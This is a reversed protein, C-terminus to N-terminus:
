RTSYFPLSQQCAVCMWITRGIQGTLQQVRGLFITSYYYPIIRNLIETTFCIFYTGAAHYSDTPIHSAFDTEGSSSYCGNRHESPIPPLPKSAVIFRNWAVPEDGKEDQLTKLCDQLYTIHDEPRNYMLGTMLSQLLLILLWTIVNCFYKENLAHFFLICFKASFLRMSYYIDNRNFKFTGFLHKVYVPNHNHWHQRNNQWLYIMM